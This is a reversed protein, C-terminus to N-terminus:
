TQLTGSTVIVDVKLAVLDTVDGRYEIVVNRGEVYGLDRMGQRFSEANASAGTGLYGIRAVKGAQQAESALPALTLSLAVVVALGIRRMPVETPSPQRSDLLRQRIAPAPRTPRARGVRHGSGAAQLVESGVGYRRRRIARSRTSACSPKLLTNM